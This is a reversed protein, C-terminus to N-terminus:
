SPATAEATVEPTPMVFQVTDLIAQLENPASGDMAAIPDTYVYFVFNIEFQRLGAFWGRTDPLQPCKVAAFQTGIAQLGG